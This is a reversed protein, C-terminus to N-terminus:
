FDIFNIYNDIFHYNIKKTLSILFFLSVIGIDYIVTPVKSNAERVNIHSYAFIKVLEVGM